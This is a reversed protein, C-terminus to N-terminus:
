EERFLKPMMLSSGVMFGSVCCLLASFAFNGHGKELPGSGEVGGRGRELGVIGVSFVSWLFIQMNVVFSQRVLFDSRECASAEQHYLVALFLCMGIVGARAIDHKSFETAAAFAAKVNWSHVVGLHVQLMFTLAFGMTVVFNTTAVTLSLDRLAVPGEATTHVVGGDHSRYPHTEPEGDEHHRTHDHDTETEM